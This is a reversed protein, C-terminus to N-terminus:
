LLDAILQLVSEEQDKVPKSLDFFLWPHGDLDGQYGIKYVWLSKFDNGLYFVLDKIKSQNIAMLVDSLQPEHGLIEFHEAEFLDEVILVVGCDVSEIIVHTKDDREPAGDSDRPSGDYEYNLIKWELFSDNGDINITELLEDYCDTKNYTKLTELNMEVHCYTSLEMLKPNAIQCAKKIKEYNTM